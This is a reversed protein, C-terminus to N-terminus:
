KYQLTGGQKKVFKTWEYDDYNYTMYKVGGRGVGYVYTETYYKIKMSKLSASAEDILPLMTYQELIAAECANLIKTRFSLDAKSGATLQIVDKTVEGDVVVYANITEGALANISWDAVSASLTVNKHVQGKVDTVEDFTIAKNISTYDISDDYQYSPKTYASVLNYPNLASGQWGVGFLIDVKNDRLADAYANGLTDDITFTLKGELATGKVANTWCNTLYEYGKKYFNTTNNPTGIKLEVVDDADMLGAAIAADYAAQFKEKAQALDVGTISAIAEDKTQYRKGEGVQDALGWFELVIDKSAENTRYAVGNEPDSIILKNFVATAPISTPDCALAFAVRDVAFSLAKRFDLLSLITKNKNDGAAKEQEALMRADPNIAIFFTSAGETYYLYDSMSYDDMDDAQLGYSDLQGNEFMQLRTSAEKVYQVVIQTTQYLPVDSEDNYEHYHENKEFRFEKDQQFATLKYPGYSKFKDASTGYSNQYIGDKDIVECAKYTEEHVLWSDTLSYLLYFGSLEKELIIVLDGDVAKIGVKEWDLTGYTYEYLLYGGEFGAGEGWTPVSIVETLLAFTEDTVKVRGKEDAKALLKNYAEVNFYDTGYASVYMDLTDGSLWTLGEKLAIVVPSGNETVYAGTEDKTLDKLGSYKYESGNYNDEYVTSGQKYYNQSNFVVMDGSYLSDARYNQAVPNLLLKASTVFDQATIEEGTEWKLDDKLDIKWARGTENEAIGWEEGVYDATVDVPLSKAMSPVIEYGDKTDNYDFTYFGDSTYGLIESDTATQYTHPNWNTPFVSMAYNYTYEGVGEKNGCSALTVTTLAAMAVLCIRKLNKM